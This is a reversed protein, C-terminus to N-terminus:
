YFNSRAFISVVMASSLRHSRLKDGDGRQPGNRRFPPAGFSSCSVVCQAKLAKEISQAHRLEQRM